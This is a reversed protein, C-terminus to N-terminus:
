IKLLHLHLCKRFVVDTSLANQLLKKLVANDRMKGPALFSILKLEAELCFSFPPPPPPAASLNLPVPVFSDFLGAWTHHVVCMKM